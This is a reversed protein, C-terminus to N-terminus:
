RKHTLRETDQLLSNQQEWTPPTRKTFKCKEETWWKKIIMIIM